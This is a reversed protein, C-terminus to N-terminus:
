CGVAEYASSLVHSEFPPNYTGPKVSRLCPRFRNANARQMSVGCQNQNAVMDGSEFEECRFRLNRAVL